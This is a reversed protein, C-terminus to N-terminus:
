PQKKMEPLYPRYREPILQRQLRPNNRAENNISRHYLRWLDEIPDEPESALPPGGEKAPVLPKLELKGAGDCSLCLSRKEDIIAWPSDGFRLRFHEGLAPLIYYDPACRAEYVGQVLKFRLLGL